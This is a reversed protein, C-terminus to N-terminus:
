FGRSGTTRGPLAARATEIYALNLLAIDRAGSGPTSSAPSEECLVRGESLSGTSLVLDALNDLRGGLVETLANDRAFQIAQEFVARQGPPHGGTNRAGLDLLTM